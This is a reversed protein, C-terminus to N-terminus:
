TSMQKDTQIESLKMFDYEISELFLRLERLLTTFSVFNVEPVKQGVYTKNACDTLFVTYIM